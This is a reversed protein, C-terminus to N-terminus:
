VQTCWETLVDPYKHKSFITRVPDFLTISLPYPPATKVNSSMQLLAINGSLNEKEQWSVKKVLEKVLPVPKEQFNKRRHRNVTGSMHSAVFFGLSNVAKDSSSWRESVYIKKKLQLPSSRPFM